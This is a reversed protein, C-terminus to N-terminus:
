GGAENEVNFSMGWIDTATDSPASPYEIRLLDNLFTLEAWVNEDFGHRDPRTRGTFLLEDLYSAASRGQPWAETLRSVIHPFRQELASQM